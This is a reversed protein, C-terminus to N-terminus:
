DRKENILEEANRLTAESIVDGSLLRAIEEIRESRNLEKVQTHTEEIDDFKQIKFHVDAKAIIQPLHSILIVQRTKSLDLLRNGVANAAKGSLGSDIEDFVLTKNTEDNAFVKKIALMFRSMEGGSIIERLPKLDAGKNTIVMFDIKDIGDISPYKEEFLVTFYINSMDLHKLEDMLSTEFIKANEKRISSLKNSIKDYEIKLKNVEAQKDKINDEINKLNNLNDQLIAKYSIIESIEKNYKKKISQISSLRFNIEELRSEDFDINMYDDLSDSIDEAEYIISQLRKTLESISEDFSDIKELSSLSDNLYGLAGSGGEFDGAISNKANMISNYILQYNELKNLEDRLSHEEGEKLDLAEIENIQFEIYDMEQNINESTKILKDLDLQAAKQKKFLDEVKSKIEISELSLGDIMPLYNDQDLLLQHEYQGYINCIQNALIKLNNITVSFGNIRSVSPYDLFIDRRITFTEEDSYVGLDKLIPIIEEDLSFIAEVVAHDEGSKIMTKSAREGLCVSLAEFVISKGAGTEGSLINLGHKFMIRSNKILAFNNINLELLM